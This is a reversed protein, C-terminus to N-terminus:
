LIILYGKHCIERDRSTIAYYDNCNDNYSLNHRNSTDEMILSDFFMSDSFEITYTIAFSVVKFGGFTLKCHFYILKM